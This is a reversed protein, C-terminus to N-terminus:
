PALTFNVQIQTEVDVPEGKLFYPRYKWQKVADMAAEALLPDGSVLTLGVIDGNKSITATMIVVGQIHKKRAKKPYVPSVKRILLGATVGSSVRVRQPPQEPSTEPPAPPSSQDKNQDKTQSRDRTQGVLLGSAAFVVVLTSVLLPKRISSLM